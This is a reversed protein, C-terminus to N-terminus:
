EIMATCHRGHQMATACDNAPCVAGKAEFYATGFQTPYCPVWAIDLSYGVPIKLQTPGAATPPPHSLSYRVINLQDGDRAMFKIFQNHSGSALLPANGHADFATM